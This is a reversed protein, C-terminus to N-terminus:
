KISLKVDKEYAVAIIPLLIELVGNNYTATAKSQDVNCSLKISTSYNLGKGSVSINIINSSATISIENKAAGEMSGIVVVVDKKYITEVLPEPPLPLEEPLQKDKPSIGQKPGQTFDKLKEVNIKIGLDKSLGNEDFNEKLTKAIIKILTEIDPINDIDQKNSKKKPM